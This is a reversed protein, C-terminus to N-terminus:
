NHFIKSGTKSFKSNVRKFVPELSKQPERMILFMALYICLALLSINVKSRLFIFFGFVALPILFLISIIFSIKEALELEMKKELIIQMIKGGDLSSIPLLNLIGISLSETSILNLINKYFFLSLLFCILSILFNMFSGSLLMVIDKKYSQNQNEEVIDFSFPEIKIIKIRRGSLIFAIIHGLEHIISLVAAIPVEINPRLIM